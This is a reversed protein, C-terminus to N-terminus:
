LIEASLFSDLTKNGNSTPPKKKFNQVLKRKKTLPKLRSPYVDPKSRGGLGDFTEEDSSDSLDM